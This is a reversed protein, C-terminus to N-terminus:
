KGSDLMKTCISVSKNLAKILITQTGYKLIMHAKVSRALALNLPWALQKSPGLTHAKQVCPKFAKNPSNPAISMLYSM